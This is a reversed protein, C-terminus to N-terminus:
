SLGPRCLNKGLHIRCLRGFRELSGTASYLYSLNLLGTLRNCTRCRYTFPEFDVVSRDLCVYYIGAGFLEIVVVADHDTITQAEARVLDLSIMIPLIGAVAGSSGAGIILVQRSFGISSIQVVKVPLEWIDQVVEEFLMGDM